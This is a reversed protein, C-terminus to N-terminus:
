VLCSNMASYRSKMRNPEMEKDVIKSATMMMTMNEMCCLSCTDICCQHNGSYFRHRFLFIRGLINHNSSQFLRPGIRCLCIDLIPQCIRCSCHFIDQSHGFLECDRPWNTRYLSNSDLHHSSHRLHQWYIRTCPWSDLLSSCINHHYCIYYDIHCDDFIDLLCTRFFLSCFHNM